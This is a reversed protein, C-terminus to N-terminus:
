AKPTRRLLFTMIQTVVVKGDEDALDTRVKVATMTAGGKGEKVSVDEVVGSSHLRMGVLVPAHYRFEQEGHLLLGGDKRLDALLQGLDAAEPDRPPQDEALAGWYGAVFTFTPPVPVAPYGAQKAAEASAYIPSTAHVAEAFRAVPGREIVITSEPLKRGVLDTATDAM